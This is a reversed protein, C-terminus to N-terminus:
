PAEDADADAVEKDEENKRNEDAPKWDLITHPDEGLERLMWVGRYTTLRRLACHRRVNRAIRKRLAAQKYDKHEVKDRVLRQWFKFAAVPDDARLAAHVCDAGINPSVTYKAALLSNVFSQVNELQTRNPLSEDYPTSIASRILTSLTKYDLQKIGAQRARIILSSVLEMDGHLAAHHIATGFTVATPQLGRQVMESIMRAGARPNVEALATLAVNVDRVDLEDGREMIIRLIQFGEKVQGLMIHARALANITKHPARELPEHCEKFKLLVREAFARYDAVQEEYSLGDEPEDLADGSDSGASSALKLANDRPMVDETNNPRDDPDSPRELTRNQLSVKSEPDSPQKQAARHQVATIRHKALSILRLATGGDGYVFVDHSYKEWLARAYSMYGHAAAETIAYARMLQPIDHGGEVIDRVLSRTVFANKNRVASRFLWVWTQELPPPYQHRALINPSKILRYFADAVSPMDHKCVREYFKHIIEDPIIMFDPCNVLRVLLSSALLPSTPEGESSLAYDLVELVADNLGPSSAQEWDPTSVLLHAARSRWGFLMCCQLLIVFITHTFSTEPLGEMAEQPIAGRQVLQDFIPKVLEKQDFVLLRRIIKFLAWVAGSDSVKEMAHRHLDPRESDLIALLPPALLTYIQLEVTTDHREQAMGLIDKLLRIYIGGPTIFLRNRSALEALLRHIINFDRINRAFSLLIELMQDRDENDHGKYQDLIDTALQRVVSTKGAKAAKFLIRRVPEAPMYQLKPSHKPCSDMKAEPVKAKWATENLEFPPKTENPQLVTPPEDHHLHVDAARSAKPSDATPTVYPVSRSALRVHVPSHLVTHASFRFSKTASSSSLLKTVNLRLLHHRCIFM